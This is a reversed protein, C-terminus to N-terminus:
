RVELGRVAAAVLKILMTNRTEPNGTTTLVGYIGLLFLSRLRRADRASPKVQPTM